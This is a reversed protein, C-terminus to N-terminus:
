RVDMCVRLRSFAASRSALLAARRSFGASTAVLESMVIAMTSNRLSMRSTKRATTASSALCGRSIANETPLWIERNILCAIESGSYVGCFSVAEIPLAEIMGSATRSAGAHDLQAIASVGVDPFKFRLRPPPESSAM